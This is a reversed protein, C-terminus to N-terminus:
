KKLLIPRGGHVGDVDTPLDGVSFIFDYGLQKKLVKKRDAPSFYLEDYQIGHSKLQKKTIINSLKTDPRATILIVKIGRSKAYNCLDIIPQISHHRDILTQDIDFMVASNPNIATNRILREGLDQYKIYADLNVTVMFFLMVLAAVLVM